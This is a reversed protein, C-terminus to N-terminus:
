EITDSEEEDAGTDSSVDGRLTSPAGSLGEVRGLDLTDGDGTHEVDVTEHRAMDGELVGTELTGFADTNDEPVSSELENEPSGDIMSESEEGSPSLEEEAEPEFQGYFSVVSSQIQEVISEDIEPIAELQEPTMTKVTLGCSFNSSVTDPQRVPGRGCHLPM